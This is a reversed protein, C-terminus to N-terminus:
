ISSNGPQKSVNENIKIGNYAIQHEHKTKDKEEWQKLSILKENYAQKRLHWTRIVFPQIADCLLSKKPCWPLVSGFKSSYTM